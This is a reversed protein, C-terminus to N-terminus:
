ARNERAMQDLRVATLLSLLHEERPGDIPPWDPSTLERIAQRIVDIDESETIMVFWDQVSRPIM